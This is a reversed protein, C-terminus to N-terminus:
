ALLLVSHASGLIQGHDLAELTFSYQTGTSTMQSLTEGPFAGQIFAFNESNEAVETVVAASPTTGARFDDGGFHVAPNGEMTWVHTLADLDFVATQTTAGQTQAIVMKFDFDALTETGGNFGTNVVYDFNVLSHTADQNGPTATYHVTGDSSVGDKVIDAGGRYHFKLGLEVDQDNLDAINYHLLSNGGGGWWPDTPNPQGAGQIENGSISADARHTVDNQVDLIADNFKLFEVNRLSDAGDRDAVHDVVSLKSDDAGHGNRHGDFSISYDAYNGSYVATDIGKGGDIDDNGKGGTILDNGDKGMLKDDGDTGGLTNPAQTGKIPQAV